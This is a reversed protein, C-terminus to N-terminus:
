PFRSNNNFAYSDKYNISSYTNILFGSVPLYSNTNLRRGYTSPSSGTLGFSPNSNDLFIM